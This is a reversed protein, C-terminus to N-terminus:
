FWATPVLHPDFVGLPAAGGTDPPPPAAAAYARKRRQASWGIPPGDDVVPTGVLTLDRALGSYDEANTAIARDVCPYWGELNATRKPVYSWRESAREAATLAASWWKIAAIRGPLPGDNASGGAAGWEMLANSGTQAQTRQPAATTSGDWYVDTRDAVEGRLMAVHYWTLTSPTINLTANIGDVELFVRMQGALNSLSLYHYPNPFGPNSGLYCMIDHIDPAPLSAFLIWFQITWPGAISPLSATRQLRDLADGFFRVAM